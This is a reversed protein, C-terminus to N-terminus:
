VCSAAAAPKAAAPAARELWRAIMDAVAAQEYLNVPFTFELTTTDHIRSVGVHIFTTTTGLSVASLWRRTHAGDVQGLNSITMLPDLMVEGKGQLLLAFRRALWSTMRSQGPSSWQFLRILGLPAGARVRGFLEAVQAALRPGRRVYGTIVGTYNGPARMPAGCAPHLDAAVQIGFGPTDPCCELVHAALQRTLAQTYSEGDRRTGILQAVQRETLVHRVVHHRFASEPQARRLPSRGRLARWRWQSVMGHMLAPLVAPGPPPEAPAPAAPAAASDAMADLQRFFQEVWWYGARGNAFTHDVRFEVRGAEWATLRLPLAADGAAVPGHGRLAACAQELAARWAPEPRASWHWGNGSRQRVLQLEPWATVLRAYAALAQELPAARALDGVIVIDTPCGLSDLAMFYADGAQRVLEAPFQM